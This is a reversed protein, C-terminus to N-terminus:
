IPSKSNDTETKAVTGHSSDEKHKDEIIAKVDVKILLQNEDVLQWLRFSTRESGSKDVTTYEDLKYKERRPDSPNDMGNRKWLDDIMSQKHASRYQRISELVNGIVNPKPM